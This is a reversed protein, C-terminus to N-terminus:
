SLEKKISNLTELTYIIVVGGNLQKNIEVVQHATELTDVIISMLKQKSAIDICPNFLEKKTNIFDIFRGKYGGIGNEKCKQEIRELTSFIPEAKEM